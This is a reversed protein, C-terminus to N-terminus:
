VVMEQNTIRECGMLPQLVEPVLISGDSQQYNEIVAILTRGVALGSGNLTHPFVKKGDSTKMRLEMREAQFAEFNSCSSVERYRGQGPLWVEIDFTKAASFGLDGGCLSVVQYPLKLDDLIGKADNLLDDLAQYSHEPHVVKVLEIKEFQHVRFMGKTDKGYSGAEKRFCLTHAMINQPLQKESLIRNAFLNTLTVEATPILYFDTEAIKFQDDIFKPLQGTGRFCQTNAMVPTNIEVYGNQEHKNLMYQSLSRHLKAIKGKLVAFRSGALKAGMAMDILSTADMHEKPNQVNNNINGYQAVLVNDDEDKGPVVSDHPVNPIGSIINDWQEELTRQKEESDSIKDKINAIKEALEETNDGSKKMMGFSKSLRKKEQLLSEHQVIAESREQKIQELQDRDFNINRKKLGLQVKTIDEKIMSKM